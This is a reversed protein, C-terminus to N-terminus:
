NASPKEMSDIIMVDVPGKASKLKLGLEQIATFISGHLDPSPVPRTSDNAAAPGPPSWPVGGLSEDPTFELHFDFTATFGTKDVVTRGLVNSLARVLETMSIRGGQMRVRSSSMM